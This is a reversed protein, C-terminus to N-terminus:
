SGFGEFKNTFGGTIPKLVALFPRVCSLKMGLVSSHFNHAQLEFRACDVEIKTASIGTKLVMAEARMGFAQLRIGAVQFTFWGRNSFWSSAQNTNRAGIVTELFAGTVFLTHNKIVTDTRNGKVTLLFDKNVTDTRFGDVTFNDFVEVKSTRGNKVTRNEGTDIESTLKGIIKLNRDGTAHLSQNGKVYAQDAGPKPDPLFSESTISKWNALSGKINIHNDQGANPVQRLTNTLNNMGFVSQHQDM